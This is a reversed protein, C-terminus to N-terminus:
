AAMSRCAKACALCKSACQRCHEAQHKGCEEGCAECIDACIRCLDKAKSSGLSMLEASAYCISACEMGLQICRSMM